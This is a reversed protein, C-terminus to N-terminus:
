ALRPFYERLFVPRDSDASYPEVGSQSIRPPNLPQQAIPKKWVYRDQLLCTQSRGAVDVGLRM